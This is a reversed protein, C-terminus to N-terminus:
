RISSSSSSGRDIRRSSLSQPMLHSIAQQKRQPPPPSAIAAQHHAITTTSKVMIALQRQIGRRLRVLLRQHPDSSPPCLTWSRLTPCPSISQMCCLLSLSPALDLAWASRPLSLCAGRAAPLRYAGERDPATSPFVRGDGDGDCRRAVVQLGVCESIFPRISDIMTGVVVYIALTTALYDRRKRRRITIIYLLQPSRMCVCPPLSNAVTWLM